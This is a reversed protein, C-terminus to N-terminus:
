LPLICEHVSGLFGDRKIIRTKPDVEYILTCGPKYWRYRYEINGDELTRQSLLREDLGPRRLDMSSGVSRQMLEQFNEFADSCGTACGALLGQSVVVSLALKSWKAIPM